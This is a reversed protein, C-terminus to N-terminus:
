KQKKKAREVNYLDLLANVREGAEKWNQPIDAEVTLTGCYDIEKLTNFFSSYDYGDDIAPIGREPYSLPYDIHLHKIENSYKQIESVHEGSAISHRLDVMMHFNPMNVYSIYEAAEALTNIFNSYRPGLPELLLDMGYCGSIESIMKMFEIFKGRHNNCNELRMRAKGNGFIIKGTGLASVRKCCRTIYEEWETCKFDSLSILPENVPLIRGTVEVDHPKIQNKLESFQYDSLQEIEPTDLEGFDFGSQLIGELDRVFGFGGLSVTM